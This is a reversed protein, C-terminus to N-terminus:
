EVVEFGLDEINEKIEGLSINGADYSIDVTGSKHSAKIKKIGKISELSNKIRSECGSCHMGNVKLNISEM